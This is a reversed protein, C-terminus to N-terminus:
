LLDARFEAVSDQRARPEDATARQVAAILGGPLDPRVHALPPVAVTASVLPAPDKM